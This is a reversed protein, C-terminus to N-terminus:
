IKEGMKRSLLFAKAMKLDETKTKKKNVTKKEERRQRLTKIPKECKIIDTVILMRENLEHNTVRKSKIFDTRKRLIYEMTDGAQQPTIQFAKSIENRSVAERKYFAWWAVALYLPPDNLHSVVGPLVWSIVAVRKKVTRSFLAFDEDKKGNM